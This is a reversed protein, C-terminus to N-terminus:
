VTLRKTHIRHTLDWYMEIDPHVLHRAVDCVFTARSIPLREPLKPKGSPPDPEPAEPSLGARPELFSVERVSVGISRLTDSLGKVNFFTISTPEYPSDSGTPCYM